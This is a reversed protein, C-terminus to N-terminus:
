ALDFRAVRWPFGAEWQCCFVLTNTQKMSLTIPTEMDTGRDRLDCFSRDPCVREASSSAAIVSM